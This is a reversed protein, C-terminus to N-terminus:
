KRRRFVFGAPALLGLAAIIATPEPVPSGNVRFVGLESNVMNWSPPLTNTCAFTGRENSCCWNAFTDNGKAVALVWYTEGNDLYVHNVSDFEVIGSASIPLNKYSLYDHTSGPLNYGESNDNNLVFLHIGPDGVLSFGAIEVSDLTFDSGSVTFPMALASYGFMAESGGIAWGDIRYTDGPGFNSYIVDAQASGVCLALIMVLSFFLAIKKM